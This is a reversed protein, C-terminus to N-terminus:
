TGDDEKNVLVVGNIVDLIDLANSNCSIAQMFRASTWRQLQRKNLGSQRISNSTRKTVNARQISRVFARRVAIVM